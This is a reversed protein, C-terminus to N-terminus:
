AFSFRNMTPIRSDHFRWFLTETGTARVQSGDFCAVWLNGDADMTMGDPHGTVNNARFDYAARGNAAFCLFM